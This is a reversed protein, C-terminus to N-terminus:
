NMLNRRRLAKRAIRRALQAGNSRVMKRVQGSGENGAIVWLFDDRSLENNAFRLVVDQTYGDKLVKSWNVRM